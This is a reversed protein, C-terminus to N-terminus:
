CIEMGGDMEREGEEKRGRGGVKGVEQTIADSSSHVRRRKVPSKQTSEVFARYTMLQLEYDQIVCLHRVNYLVDVRRGCYKVLSLVICLPVVDNGYDLM